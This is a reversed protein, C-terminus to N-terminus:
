MTDGDREKPRVHFRPTRAPPAGSIVPSSSRARARGIVVVCVIIVYVLLGHLWSLWIRHDVSLEILIMLFVTATTPLANDDLKRIARTFVVVVAILALVGLLGLEFWQDFVMNHASPVDPLDYYRTGQIHFPAIRTTDAGHGIWFSEFISPTMIHWLEMRAFYSYFPRFHGIATSEVWHFSPTAIYPAALTLLCYIVCVAALVQRYHRASILLLIPSALIMLNVGSTRGILLTPVAFLLALALRWTFIRDREPFLLAATFLFGYFTTKHFTRVAEQDAPLYSGTSFVSHVETGVLCLLGIAAGISLIMWARELRQDSLSAAARVAITGMIIYGAVVVAAHLSRRPELSWLASVAGLAAIVILSLITPSRLRVTADLVGQPNAIVLAVAVAAAWATPSLEVLVFLAPAVLLAIIICRAARERPDQTLFPDTGFIGIRLSRIVHRLQFPRDSSM